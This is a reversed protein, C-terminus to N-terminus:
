FQYSALVCLSFVKLSIKNSSEGSKIKCYWEAQDEMAVRSVRLQYKQKGESLTKDDNACYVNYGKHLHERLVQCKDGKQLAAALTTEGRKMVVTLETGSKRDYKM